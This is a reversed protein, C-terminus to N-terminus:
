GEVKRDLGRAEELLDTLQQLKTKGMSGLLGALLEIVPDDLKELLQLGRPEISTLVVRRDKDSRKRSVLAARELRDLLRTIDPDRHVMREAIEGCPLGEGGAGRLIRLVNYQTSSLGHQQLLKEVQEGLKHSTRVLNLYTEQEMSRFPRTQRIEERLKGSMSQRYKNFRIIELQRQIKPKGSSHL